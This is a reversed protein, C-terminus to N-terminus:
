LIILILKGRVNFYAKLDLKFNFNVSFLFIYTTILTNKNYQIAKVNINQVNYM